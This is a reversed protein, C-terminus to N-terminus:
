PLHLGKCMKMYKEKTNFTLIDYLVKSTGYRYKAATKVREHM